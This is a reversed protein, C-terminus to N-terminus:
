QFYATGKIKTSAGAIQFVHKGNPDLEKTIEGSGNGNIIYQDDLLIYQYSTYDIEVRATGLPLTYFLYGGMCTVSYSASPINTGIIEVGNVVATKDKLIDGATANGKSKLNELENKLENYKKLLVVEEIEYTEGTYNCNGEAVRVEKEEALKIAATKDNEVCVSVKGDSYVKVKGNDIKGKYTIQKDENVCEGNSCTFETTEIGEVMNKALYMESAEILGYASDKLAGQKSKGIVNLLIPVAILAIVALVVIVALLEILTFGKKDKKKM